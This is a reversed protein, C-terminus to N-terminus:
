NRRWSFTWLLSCPYFCSRPWPHTSGVNNFHFLSMKRQILKRLIDPWTLYKEAFKSRHTIQIFWKILNCLTFVQNRKDKEITIGLFCGMLLAVWHLSTAHRTTRMKFPPTKTRWGEWQTWLLSSRVMTTTNASISTIAPRINWKYEFLTASSTFLKRCRRQITEM